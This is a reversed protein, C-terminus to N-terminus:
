KDLDEILEVPDIDFGKALKALTPPQCTGRQRIISISQYCIGSRKALEIATMNKEVLLLNLKKTNIKM